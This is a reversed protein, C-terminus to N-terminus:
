SEYTNVEKQLHLYSQLIKEMNEGIICWDYKSRALAHGNEGIQHHQIKDRLVDVVTRAFEEPKDAILVDKGSTVEIGECGISTTVIPKKMSMAEVVKLRTGGGMRLPVVYAKSRWVYPRVDEVFGTIIVNASARRQLFPPPQNGVIYIKVDPIEKLILPFIEDLFYLIGDYNPVYKMLGTFVLSNPEVKDNNPIFYETDVGNPIVYKPVKPAIEDIIEKDRASTTFVIDQKRYANCEERFLGRYEHLYHQKRLWTRAHQAMRMYNDYEVNHADLVKLANSKLSYYGMMGFEAFVLDFKEKSLVDDLMQQMKRSYCVMQLFSMKSLHAALQGIRRNHAVWPIPVPYVHKPSPNVASLIQQETDPDGFCVVSVDHHKTFHKLLHHVRLAGGYIPPEPSYSM